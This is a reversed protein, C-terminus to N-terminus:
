RRRRGEYEDRRNKASDLREAYSDITTFGGGSAMVKLMKRAAKHTSYEGIEFPIIGDEGELLVFYSPSTSGRRSGSLMSATSRGRIRTWVLTAKDFDELSEWRGSKFGLFSRYQRIQKKEFDINVGRFDLFLAASFIACVAFFIGTPIDGISLNIFAGFVCLIMVVGGVSSPFGGFRPGHKLTIAGSKKM